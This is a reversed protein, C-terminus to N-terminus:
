GAALAIVLGSPSSAASATTAALEGIVAPWAGASGFTLPYWLLCRSVSVSVSRRVSVLRAGPRCAAGTRRLLLRVGLIEKVRKRHTISRLGALAARLLRAGRQDARATLLGASEERRAQATLLLKRSAAQKAASSATAVAPYAAEPM